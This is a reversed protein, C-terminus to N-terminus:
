NLSLPWLSYSFTAFIQSLKGSCSLIRSGLGGGWSAHGPLAQTVPIIMLYFNLFAGAAGALKKLSHGFIQWLRLARGGIGDAHGPPAQNLPTLCLNSIAIVGAVRRLSHGLLSQGWGGAGPVHGPSTRSLISFLSFLNGKEKSAM